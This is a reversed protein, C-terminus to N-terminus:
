TPKVWVGSTDAPATESIYVPVGIRTQAGEQIGNLKAKDAASMLGSSSTTANNSGAKNNWTTKETDTVFRHTSDTGIRSAKNSSILLWYTSGEAPAQGAPVDKLSLWVSDDHSVFTQKEYAKSSQYPNAEVTVSVKGLDAM